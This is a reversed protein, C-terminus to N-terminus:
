QCRIEQKPLQFTVTFCLGRILVMAPYFNLSPPFIFSSFDLTGLVSCPSIHSPHHNNDPFPFGTWEVISQWTRCSKSGSSRHDDTTKNENLLLSPWLLLIWFAQGTAIISASRFKNCHKSYQETSKNQPDHM